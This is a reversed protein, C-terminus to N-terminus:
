QRVREVGDMGIFRTGPPLAAAQAPSLRQGSQEGAAPASGEQQIKAILQDIVQFSQELQQPSMEPDLAAVTASLMRAENDSLAGLGSAGTPSNAKMQQLNEFTINGKLTQLNSELDARNQRNFPNYQSWVGASGILGRARGLAGQMNSAMATRAEKAGAIRAAAEPDVSEAVSALPQNGLGFRTDGENLTYGATQTDLGLRDRSVELAGQDVALRGLGLERDLDTKAAANQESISPATRTYLPNVGQSTVQLIQDGSEVTRPQELALRGGIAQGAGAAIVQPAFQQGVNKAWEEPDALYLARERPDTITELIQRQRAMMLPANAQQQLRAREADLGETVTQGGLVRDLLRWGSVRERPQNSGLAAQDAAAREADRRAFMEDGADAMMPQQVPLAGVQGLLSAFDPLAGQQQPRRGMLGFVPQSVQFLNAM